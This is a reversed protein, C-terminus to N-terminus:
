RLILGMAQVGSNIQSTATTFAVIGRQVFYQPRRTFSQRRM